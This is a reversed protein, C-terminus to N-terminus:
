RGSHEPVANLHQTSNFYKEAKCLRDIILRQHDIYPNTRAIRDLRKVDLVSMIICMWKIRLITTLAYFRTEINLCQEPRLGRILPSKKAAVPIHPQLIFDALTKSPDDWGSFEFDIFVIGNTALISNHFGFDGPSVCLCSRDLEDVLEGKYILSLVQAEVNTYEVRVRELLIRAQSQLEDAVHSISMGALRNDVNSLHETIRIFGEAARQQILNKASETCTNLRRFFDVAATIAEAPAPMGDRFRQGDIYELAICRRISDTCILQPTL